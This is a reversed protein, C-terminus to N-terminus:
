VITTKLNAVVNNAIIKQPQCNLLKGKGVDTKLSLPPLTYRTNYFQKGINEYNKLLM